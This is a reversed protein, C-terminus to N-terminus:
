WCNIPERTEENNLNVLLGIVQCNSDISAIESESHLTAFIKYYQEVLGVGVPSVIVSMNYNDLVPLAITGNQIAKAVEIVNTVNIILNNSDTYSGAIAIQEIMSKIKLISSHAEKRIIAVRVISTYKISIAALVILIIVSFMLEILTIAHLKKQM